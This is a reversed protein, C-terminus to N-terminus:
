IRADHRYEDPLTTRALYRLLTPPRRLRGSGCRASKVDRNWVLHFSAVRRQEFAWLTEDDVILRPQTLDEHVQHPVVAEVQMSASFPSCASATSSRCGTVSTILSRRMGLSSPM